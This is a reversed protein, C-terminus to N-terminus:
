SKARGTVHGKVVKVKIQEGTVAKASWEQGMGASPIPTCFSLFVSIPKSQKLCLKEGKVTWHGSSMDGRRGESSYAGNPQLWLEGQRGDPYTSVVTNGFAGAVPSAAQAAFASALTIPLTLRALHRIM